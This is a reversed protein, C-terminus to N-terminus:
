SASVLKISRKDLFTNTKKTFNREFTSWISRDFENAYLIQAGSKKFGLDLGGAGTFFSSIKM